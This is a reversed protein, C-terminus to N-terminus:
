RTRYRNNGQTHHSTPGPRSRAWGRGSRAGENSLPGVFLSSRYDIEIDEIMPGAKRQQIGIFPLHQRFLDIHLLRGVAFRNGLGALCAAVGVAHLGAFHVDVQGIQSTFGDEDIDGCVGSPNAASHAHPLRSNGAQVEPFWGRSM